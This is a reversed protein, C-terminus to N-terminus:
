AVETGISVFDIDGIPTLAKETIKTLGNLVGIGFQRKTASQSIAFFVYEDAQMPIEIEIVEGGTQELRYKDDQSNYTVVLSQKSNGMALLNYTTYPDPAKTKLWFSFKFTGNQCNYINTKNWTAGFTNDVKLGKTYRGWDYKAVGTTSTPEVGGESTLNEELSWAENEYILGIRRAIQNEYSVTSAEGGLRWARQAQESNWPFTATKWTENDDYKASVVSLSTFFSNQATLKSPLVMEHIYESWSVSPSQQIDDGAEEMHVKNSPWAFLRANHQLIVNRSTDQKVNIVCWAANDSYIKPLAVAKLWFKREATSGSPISMQNVKSEAVKVGSEWNQGERLEYYSLDEETNAKWTFDIRNSYVTAVLDDPMAPANLVLKYTTINDSYEGSASISRIHYYYTGKDYQYNAFSTGAFSTILVEADDWTEGCRVEYAYAKDVPAWKVELFSPRKIVQFDTVDLPTVYQGQALYYFEVETTKNGMLGVGRLIFHYTGKQVNDLQYYNQKSTITAWETENQNERRWQLEYSVCGSGVKWSINLTSSIYGLGLSSSVETISPDSPPKINYPDNISTSDETFKIGKEILDYKKPQHAVATIAFTGPDDGQQVNVVRAIRPNLDAETIMWIANSVPLTELEDNWEVRTRNGDWSVLINREVFKGDPMMLAISAQSSTTLNVPADLIAYKSTISKLRGGLRKGAYNPDQIKIVDGPLVLASDLGVTFQIAETEYSSTYLIWRGARIAQARSTCGFATIESQRIGYKEILESDEVYEVVKKYNQDPDNWSVLAVSYRDNRSTGEYNFLGDVVNAPTYLMSPDTPMDCTFGAQGGAWYVMGNFVAAIDSIVQYADAREQIQTNIAFRKEKKGYGDDIEEDCYRGIEYLRAKNVQNPKIFEGLGWRENTLLAYLIWAPNDSVAMKFTGDWTGTYKNTDRDYNSPVKIIMGDVLYSRTPVSTVNEANVKIGVLACYPYNLKSSTIVYMSDFQTNAVYRESSDGSLRTMRILWKTAKAGSSDKQPLDFTYSKEYQSNQKGSITFDGLRAWDAGNNVAIDFRFSVSTGNINGKSDSSYIQPLVVICTVKDAEASEIAATIPLGYKVQAGVNVPTTVDNFGSLVKQNPHGNVYDIQVSDYNYTGSENQLPVDDFYISKAGNVLGGIEGESILDLVKLTANSFLSNAAISGGSSSGKSGAFNPIKVVM